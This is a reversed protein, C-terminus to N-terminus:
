QLLDLDLIKFYDNKSFREKLDEWLIKAEDIHIIIEAIKPILTITIWLLVM